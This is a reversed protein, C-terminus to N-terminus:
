PGPPSRPPGARDAKSPCGASRDAADDPRPITKLRLTAQIMKQMQQKDANGYGTVASKIQLPTYHFVPIKKQAAALLIAGRAESVPMATKLNKFFFVREISLADPRHKGILRIISSHIRLLRKEQPLDSGTRICGYELCQPPVGRAGGKRLVGYGTIATGPDIGLILM